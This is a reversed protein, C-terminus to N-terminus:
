PENSGTSLKAGKRGWGKEEGKAQPANRFTISLNVGQERTHGQVSTRLQSEKTM